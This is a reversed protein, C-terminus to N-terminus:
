AFSLVVCLALQADCVCHQGSSGGLGGVTSWSLQGHLCATVAPRDPM